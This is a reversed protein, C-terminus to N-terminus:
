NKEIIKINDAGLGTENVVIEKIQAVENSLLGPTKVIVNINDGSIVALCDAFGKAKVLEEVNAETAIEDAIAIMDQLAQDKVDPMTESSDIVTQLMEVAEDRTRQRNIQANAFYNDAAGTTSVDVTSGGTIQHDVFKAEGLIKTSDTPLDSNYLYNTTELSNSNIRWDVFVAACIVAICAFVIVTKKKGNLSKIFGKLKGM